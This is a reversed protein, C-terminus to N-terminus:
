TSSFKKGLGNVTQAGTPLRSRKCTTVQKGGGGEERVFFDGWLTRTKLCLRFWSHAAIQGYEIESLQTTADTTAANESYLIM